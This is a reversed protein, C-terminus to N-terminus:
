PAVAEELGVRVETEDESGPEREPDIVLTPPMTSLSQEREREFRVVIEEFQGSGWAEESLLWTKVFRAVGERGADRAKGLADEEVARQALKSTITKELAELNEDGDWRAWGSKTKKKMGGSDFAVPLSPEVRPAIVLLRKGDSTLFWKGNLDIHYRYTAPVQIESVTTGLPLNKGFMAVATKRSFSETSTATAIELINGQTGTAEMEKWEEFSEIVVEPQFSEIWETVEGQAARYMQKSSWALFFFVALGIAALIAIGFFLRGWCGSGSSRRGPEIEKETEESMPM